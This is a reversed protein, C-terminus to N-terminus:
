PRRVRQVKCQMRRLVYSRYVARRQRFRPCRGSLRFRYMKQVRTTRLRNQRFREVYARTRRISGCDHRSYRQGDAATATIYMTGGDMANVALVQYNCTSEDNFGDFGKVDTGVPAIKAEYTYPGPAGRLWIGTDTYLTGIKGTVKVGIEPYVTQTYGVYTMGKSIIFDMQVATTMSNRGAADWLEIDKGKGLEAGLVQMNRKLLDVDKSLKYNEKPVFSVRICYAVKQEILQNEVRSWPYSAKGKEWLTTSQGDKSVFELTATYNAGTPVKLTKATEDDFDFAAALSDGVNVKKFAVGLSDVTADAGYVRGTPKAAAMGLLVAVCAAFGCILTILKLGKTKVNLM